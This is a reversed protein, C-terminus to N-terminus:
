NENLMFTSNRVPTRKLRNCRRLRQSRLQLLTHARNHKARIDSRERLLDRRVINGGHNTRRIRFQSVVRRISVRISHLLDYFLDIRTENEQRV